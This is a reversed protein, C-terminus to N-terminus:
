LARRLALMSAKVSSQLQSRWSLPALTGTLTESGRTLSYTPATTANTYTVSGTWDNFTVDFKGGTFWKSTSDNNETLNTMVLKTYDESDETKTAQGTTTTIKSSILRSIATCGTDTTWTNGALTSTCATNTPSSSSHLSRITNKTSITLTEATTTTTYNMKLEHNALSTRTPGAECLHEINPDDSIAAMTKGNYSSFDSGPCAIAFAIKMSALEVTATAVANDNLQAVMCTKLDISGDVTLSDADAKVVLTDIADGTCDDGSSSGSASGSGSAEPEHNIFDSESNLSFLVSSKDLPTVLSGPSLDASTLFAGTSGSAADQKTEEKSCAAVLLLLPWCRNM